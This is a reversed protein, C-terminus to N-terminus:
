NPFGVRPVHSILFHSYPLSSAGYQPVTFSTLAKTLISVNGKLRNLLSLSLSLSLSM